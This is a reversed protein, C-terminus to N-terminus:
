IQAIHEFSSAIAHNPFTLSKTFNDLHSFILQAAETNSHVKLSKSSVFIM